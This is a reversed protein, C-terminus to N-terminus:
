LSLRAVPLLPSIRSTTTSVPLGASTSRKTGISSRWMPRAPAGGRCTAIGAAGIKSGGLGAADGIDGEVFLGADGNGLHDFAGPHVAPQAVKAGADLSPDGAEFAGIAGCAAGPAPKVVELGVDPRGHHGVIQHQEATEFQCLRM